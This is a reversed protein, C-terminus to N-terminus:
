SHKEEVVSQLAHYPSSLDKDSPGAQFKENLLYLFLVFLAAYVLGFMIISGLVQNASVSKSLGESIRLLGQVIWPYRGMEAAIWGAQNAIQPYLVSLVLCKLLLPKQQLKGKFYAPLAFLVTMVMLFWMLLMLHYMQFVTEVHPWDKKPIQDLGKVEADSSGFTLLSLLNPIKLGTVSEEKVSPIGFLYIPAGAETKFVGEFAALKMPQNHAVGEASEHGSFLQLILAVAAVGLGFKLSRMAFDEHRKKLLYFAGVSIVLFAGALWAGIVAHLLRDVSSPNFVMQWFDTIEARANIGEGVIHYGSPTQMWSNAVIIWIASFHAGLAVMVTSFFHMKPSVRNWGFLVLALFGSELFFAFVGEAALASGFVDGVYRSYTSWNTGFEFEMVIGTAVGMAFTLAFVKTWFKAMQLYIPEKTWLYTGEILVLLLGLGISLPPYIYHFMITFAFQARALIEVDM